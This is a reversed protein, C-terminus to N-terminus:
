DAHAVPHERRAGRSDGNARGAQAAEGAPPPVEDAGATVMIADFPAREEWGKIATATRVEVNRYGLRALRERAETALPEVIEITYVSRVLEALVAAQYGSGTGIELVRDQKGLEAPDTM